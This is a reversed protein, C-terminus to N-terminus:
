SIGAPKVGSPSRIAAGRQARDREFLAYPATPYSVGFTAAQTFTVRDPLSPVESPNRKVKEEGSFDRVIM